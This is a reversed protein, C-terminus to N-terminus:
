YSSKYEYAPAPQNSPAVPSQGGVPMARIVLYASLMALLIIIFLWMPWRIARLMTM